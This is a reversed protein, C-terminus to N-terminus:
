LLRRLFRRSLAVGVAGIVLLQLAPEVTDRGLEADFLVSNFLRQAPDIPFFQSVTAAAGDGPMLSLPVLPLVVMIAVLTAVRADGTLTALLTGLTSCTVATLVLALALVPLRPWAAPELVGFVVFLGAGIALAVMAGFVLKSGLVQWPGVAARLLRGLVREDRESALSSAVLVICVFALSVSLAFSLATATLLPSKGEERVRELRIPAATAELTNDALELGANAQGAFEIIEELRERQEEDDLEDRLEELEQRVPELGYLEYEDGQVEVTGGTVLKKLYEANTEILAESIQLNIRYVVGRVRQTTTAGLENDGTYLRLTTPALQTRLKAIAGNPILLVGAVQGDDLARLAEERDLEVIEVGSREAQERYTDIGFRKDGIKVSRGTQDENVLAIRPSGQDILLVGLLLAIALPYVVFLAVLWRTRLLMRLDKRALLWTARM